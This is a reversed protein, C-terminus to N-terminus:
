RYKDHLGIGSLIMPKIKELRALRTKEQKADTIHEVYEKQRFPTLAAFREKLAPNQDLEQQLLEPIQVPEKSKEPTHAIGKKANAIAQDLYYRILEEDVGEEKTFRLQRLAKTKGESANVLRNHKDNLYVGDYFWIAVHEKFGALGAVNKKNHTFVPIGWKTTEVLETRRLLSIIQELEEEWINQYDM